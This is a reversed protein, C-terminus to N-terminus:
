ASENPRHDLAGPVIELAMRLDAVKAALAAHESGSLGRIRPLLTQVKGYVETAQSYFVSQASAAVNAMAIGRDLETDILPVGVFSPVTAGAAVVLLFVLHPLKV